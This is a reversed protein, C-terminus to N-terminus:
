VLDKLFLIVDKFTEYLNYLIVEIEPFFNSVPTKFTDMFVIFAAFLCDIM